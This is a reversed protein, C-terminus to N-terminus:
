KEVKTKNLIKYLEKTTLIAGESSVHDGDPIFDDTALKLGKFDIVQMQNTKILEEYKMVFKSPIKAKYYPNLPTNVFVLQVGNQECLEIIENLYHCNLASIENLSDLYQLELRKDMSSKNAKTNKFKNAYQGIYYNYPNLGDKIVNLVFLGLNGRNSLLMKVKQKNPLIFFYKPAIFKSNEGYIFAEYYNSISHYSYGLYISKIKVDSKLIKKIKFFTFYFSESNQSVNISNPILSDIIGKQIHSDGMFLINITQGNNLGSITEDVKRNTFALIISLLITPISLFLFVKKIFGKIKAM